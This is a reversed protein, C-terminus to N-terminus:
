YGDREEGYDGYDEGDCAEYGGVGGGSVDVGDGELKVWQEFVGKSDDGRTGGGDPEEYYSRSALRVGRPHIIPILLNRRDTSMIARRPFSLHEIGTSVNTSVLFPNLKSSVIPM